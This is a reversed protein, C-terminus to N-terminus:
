SSASSHNQNRLEVADLHQKSATNRQPTEEGRPRAIRGQHLHKTFHDQTSTQETDVCRVQTITLGSQSAKSVAARPEGRCGRASFGSRTLRFPHLETGDPTLICPYFAVNLTTSQPPSVTTARRKVGALPPSAGEIPPVSSNPEVTYNGWKNLDEGFVPATQGPAKCGLLHKREGEGKDRGQWHRHTHLSLVTTHAHTHKRRRQEFSLTLSFSHTQTSWHHTDATRQLTVVPGLRARVRGCVRPFSAHAKIIEM